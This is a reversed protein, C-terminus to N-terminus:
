EVTPTAEILAEVEKATTLTSRAYSCDWGKKVLYLSGGFAGASLLTFGLSVGGIVSALGGTGHAVSQSASKLSKQAATLSGLAGILGLMFAILDPKSETCNKPIGQENIKTKAVALLHGKDEGTLKKSNLLLALQKKDQSNIAALFEKESFSGHLSLSFASVCLFGLFISNKM